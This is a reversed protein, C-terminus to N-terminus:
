KDDLWKCIKDDIKETVREFLELTKEKTSLSQWREQEREAQTKKFREADAWEKLRGRMEEMERRQKERIRKAASKRAKIGELQADYRKIAKTAIEAAKEKYGMEDLQQSLSLAQSLEQQPTLKGNQKLQKEIGNVAKSIEDSGIDISSSIESALNNIADIHQGM